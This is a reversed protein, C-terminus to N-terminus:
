PRRGWPNGGVNISYQGGGSGSNNFIDQWNPQQNVISGLGYAGANTAAGANGAGMMGAQGSTNLGLGGAQMNQGRYNSLTPLYSNNWASELIGGQIGPNNAPNGRPSWQRTLRNATEDFAAGYGPQSFLDFGPQYSAENRARAPAGIDFYQQAVGALADNTQNAAYMGLGTGAVNGLVSTWDATTGTGDIIRSLATGTAAASPAAPGIGAATAAGGATQGAGVSFDTVTGPGAQMGYELGTGTAGGMDFAGAAGADAGLTGANALTADTATAGPAQATMSWYSEPLAATGGEAAGVAGEAGTAGGAAGAIGGMALSAIVPGYVSMEDAEGIGFGPLAQAVMNSPMTISGDPGPQVGNQILNEYYGDGPRFTLLYNGTGDPNPAIRDPTLGLGGAGSQVFKQYDSSDDYAQRYLMGQRAASTGDEEATWDFQGTAPNYAYAM